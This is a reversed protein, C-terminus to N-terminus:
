VAIDATEQYVAGCDSPISVQTYCSWDENTGSGVYAALPDAKYAYCYGEVSGYDFAVCEADADCGAACDSISAGSSYMERLNDFDYSNDTTRACFGSAPEL